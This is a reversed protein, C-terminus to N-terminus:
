QCVINQTNMIFVNFVFKSLFRKFPLLIGQSTHSLPSPMTQCVSLNHNSEQDPFVDPNHALDETPPLQDINGKCM